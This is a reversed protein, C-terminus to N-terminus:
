TIPVLLPRTGVPMFERYRIHINKLKHANRLYGFAGMEDRAPGEELIRRDSRLRLQAYGPEGFIESHFALRASAGSVVGHHQPLRDNRGSVYSFRICGTQNNHVELRHLWIGGEGSAEEVRMRGFATLGSVTLPPGWGTESDGTAARVAFAPSSVGVGSGADLISDIVELRYANDIELPGCISRRIELIPTQNFATQEAPDSFGHDRELRMATRIPRRSGSASGDLRRQGGPDLTAGDLTLRNLAAQWVLPDGAPFSGRGTIYLGELRVDLNAMRAPADAATVDVPRFALPQAIRIVPRQGNAARIWLSSRLTLVPRVGDHGIGDVLELDLDHTLSDAIEIILPATRDGLDALADRLGNPNTHGNVTVVTAAQGNWESPSPDRPIPHAGTPGAFGYTMSALLHDRLAAGGTAQDNVGFVARGLRPDIAIEHPRLPPNLGQEWACLNAGRFTWEVLPFNVEPLHLTLGVDSPVPPRSASYTATRVYADPNGAPAGTTLRAAPMPGPVADPHTLNPPEDDAHYRHTNFLALPHGTPDLHFRVAFGAAGPAPPIAAISEFVPRSVPIQYDELRWLFIALNPLNPRPAGNAPPKLDAIRAFPDFPGDLFSLVAPSRLTVAGGRVADHINTRLTLPPTGGADPRQHNLHQTWVLRDRLEVTHAAWGTLAFTLSEVAGLTGKRRRHKVTRAVDARLTWPDGALHSTGLLDAIYPVVWDSATEIFLDHYLEEINDHLGEFVEDLIETYAQLPGKVDSAGRDYTRYIEPLREFLPKRTSSM